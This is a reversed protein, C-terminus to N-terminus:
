QLATPIRGEGGDDEGNRIALLRKEVEVGRANYDAWDKYRERAPKGRNIQKIFDEESMDGMLTTFDGALEQITPVDDAGSGAASGAAAPRGSKGPLPASAAVRDEEAKQRMAKEVAEARLEDQHKGTINWYAEEWTQPHGRLAPECQNVLARIEGEYRKFHEFGTVTREALNSLTSTGYNKFTDLEASVGRTAHSIRQDILQRIRAAGGQGEALAAEIEGDTVGAPEAIPAQPAQVIVPRSVSEKISEALGNMTQMLQNFEARSVTDAPPTAAPDAVPPTADPTKGFLAM